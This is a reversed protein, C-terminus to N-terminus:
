AQKGYERHSLGLYRDTKLGAGGPPANAGSGEAFIWKSKVTNQRTADCCLMRVRSTNGHDLAHSAKKARSLSGHHLAYANKARAQVISRSAQNEWIQSIRFMVIKKNGVDDHTKDRATGLLLSFVFFLTGIGLSWLAEVDL